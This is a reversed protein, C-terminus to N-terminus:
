SRHRKMMVMLSGLALLAITGPEPVVATVILNDLMFSSDSGRRDWTGGLYNFQGASLTLPYQPSTSYNAGGDNSIDGWVKQTVFDAYIHMKLMVNFYPSTFPGFQTVTDDPTFKIEGSNVSWSILAPNGTKDGICLQSGFIAAGGFTLTDAYMDFEFTLLTTAGGDVSIDKGIRAYGDGTSNNSTEGNLYRSTFGFNTTTNVNIYQNIRGGGAPFQILWNVPANTVSQGATVGPGDFNESYVTNTETAPATVASVLIALAAMAAAVFMKGNMKNERKNITNMTNETKNVSQEMTNM